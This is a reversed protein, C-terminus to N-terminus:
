KIRKYIDVMKDKVGDDNLDIENYILNLQNKSLADVKIVYANANDKPNIHPPTHAIKKESANYFYKHNLEEKVCKNDMNIYMTSILNGDQTFELNSKARCEDAEDEELISNDKGSYSIFKELQWKGVLSLEQQPQEPEIKKIKKMVEVLNDAVGDNNHDGQLVLVSFENESLSFIPNDSTRDNNKLKLKKHSADISFEGEEEQKQCNEVKGTYIKFFYKGNQTFEYTTKKTCEDTQIEELISNDKGSYIIIKELQWKGVLSLEQQPTPNPKPKQNGEDRKCALLSLMALLLLFTKKM